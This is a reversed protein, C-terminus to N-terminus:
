VLKIATVQNKFLLATQDKTHLFFANYDKSSFSAQGVFTYRYNGKLITVCLKKNKIFSARLKQEIVLPNIINPKAPNDPQTFFNDCYNKINQYIPSEKLKAFM